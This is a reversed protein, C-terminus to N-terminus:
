PAGRPADGTLEDVLEGAILALRQTSGVFYHSAGRVVTVSTNTWHAM